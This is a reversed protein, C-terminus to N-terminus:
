VTEKREQPKQAENGAVYEKALCVPCWDKLRPKLRKCIDDGPGTCIMEAAVRRIIGWATWSVSDNTM